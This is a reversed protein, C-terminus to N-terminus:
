NRSLCRTSCFRFGLRILFTKYPCRNKCFSCIPRSMHQNNPLVDVKKGYFIWSSAPKMYLDWGLLCIIHLSVCCNEDCTYFREKPDLKRECVECWYTMTSTEEGYSLNLMHKDHKYRVKQPLSVCEFCLSFDCELCNFTENTRCYNFDKCISCIRRQEGPKSTLFLPHMHGGNVLPVSITACQVHLQFDCGEKGCEYFFGVKCLWSCVSCNDVLFDVVGDYGGLLTLMHPHIPHYLKRSLKAYTEHLIFECQMCSYFKGYYIPMICAQCQRNESYDKCTNEDFKLYHQQHLFHQIVGDSIKVFPALEEEEIEEPEGELEKGDWVNKQIACKSHAVYFCGDKKCSYSGYDNDIKRRCVGCSWHPLSICSQHAVFDCQPCIYFPCNSHTLACLDCTLSAKRPFLALTHEHWKPCDMFLVPPKDVCVINM